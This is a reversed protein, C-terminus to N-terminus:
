HLGNHVLQCFAPKRTQTSEKKQPKARACGEEEEDEVEDEVEVQM